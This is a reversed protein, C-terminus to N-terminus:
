NNGCDAVIQLIVSSEDKLIIDRIGCYVWGGGKKPIVTTTAKVGTNESVIVEGTSVSLINVTVIPDYPADSMSAIYCDFYLEKGTCLNDIQNEFIPGKYGQAGPSQFTKNINVFLCASNDRGSIMSTHDQSVGALWTTPQLNSYNADEYHPFGGLVPVIVGFYDDGIAGTPDFEHKPINFTTTARFPAHTSPTTSENGESDVYLHENKFYGFNDEFVTKRSAPKGNVECCVM